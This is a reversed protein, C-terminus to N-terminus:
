IKKGSKIEFVACIMINSKALYKKIQTKSAKQAKEM